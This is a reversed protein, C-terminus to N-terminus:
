FLVVIKRKLFDQEDVIFFNHQAYQSLYAGALPIIDKFGIASALREVDAAIVM